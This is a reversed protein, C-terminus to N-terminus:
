GVLYRRAALFVDCVSSDTCILSGLFIIWVADSESNAAISNCVGTIAACGCGVHKGGLDEEVADDGGFPCSEHGNVDFIEVKVGITQGSYMRSFTDSMGSWM